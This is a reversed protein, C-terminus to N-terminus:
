LLKFTNGNCDESRTGKSWVVPNLMATLEEGQRQQLKSKDM